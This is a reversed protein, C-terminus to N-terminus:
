WSSTSSVVIIQPPKDLEVFQYRRETIKNKLLLDGPTEEQLEQTGVRRLIDILFMKSPCCCLWMGFAGTVPGAVSQEPKLGRQWVVALTLYEVLCPLVHLLLRSLSVTLCLSVVSFFMWQSLFCSSLFCRMMVVYHCHTKGRMRNMGVAICHHSDSQGFRDLESFCIASLSFLPHFLHLFYCFSLPTPPPSSGDRLTLWHWFLGEKEVNM